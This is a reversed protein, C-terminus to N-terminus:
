GRAGAEDQILERAAHRETALHAALRWHLKIAAILTVLVAGGLAVCILGGILMQVDGTSLMVGGFFYLGCVGAMVALDASGYYHLGLYMWLLVIFLLIGVMGACRSAWPRMETHGTRAALEGVYSFRAIYGAFGILGTAATLADLASMVWVPPTSASALAFCLAHLMAAICYVRIVRRTTLYVPTAIDGPDRATLLWCGWCWPMAATVLLIGGLWRPGLVEHLLVGAGSAIWAYPLGWTLLGAGREIRGLWEADAYRLRDGCLSLEVRLGCEPCKGSHPLGRLNYGCRKCSVGRGM